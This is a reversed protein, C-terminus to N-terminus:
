RPSEPLMRGLIVTMLGPVAGVIFMAQWGFQPVVWAGILAGAPLGVSFAFQFGLAFRGRRTAPSIENVYTALVPVEGGLGIGQIVRMVLLAALSLGAAAAGIVVDAEGRVSTSRRVEADRPVEPAYTRDLVAGGTTYPPISTM